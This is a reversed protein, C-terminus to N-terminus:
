CGLLRDGAFPQSSATAVAGRFRRTRGTRCSLGRGIAPAAGARAYPSAYDEALPDALVPCAAPCDAPEPQSSRRRGPTASPMFFTAVFSGRCTSIASRCSSCRTWSDHPGMRTVRGSSRSFVRAQSSDALGREGRASPPPPHGGGPGGGRGGGLFTQAGGRAPGAFLWKKTGGGGPTIKPARRELRDRRM